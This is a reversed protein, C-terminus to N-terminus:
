VWSATRNRVEGGRNKGEHIIRIPLAVPRLLRDTTPELGVSPVLNQLQKGTGTFLFM